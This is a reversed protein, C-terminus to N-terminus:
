KSTPNKKFWMVLLKWKEKAPSQKIMWVMVIIYMHLTCAETLATFKIVVELANQSGLFSPRVYTYFVLLHRAKKQLCCHKIARGFIGRWPFALCTQPVCPSKGNHFARVPELCLPLLPQIWKLSSPLTLRFFHCFVTGDCGERKDSASSCSSVAVLPRLYHCVLILINWNILNCM